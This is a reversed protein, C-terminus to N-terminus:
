IRPDPCGPLGLLKIQAEACRERRRAPFNGKNGRAPVLAADDTRHTLELNGIRAFRPCNWLATSVAEGALGTRNETLAHVMFRLKAEKDAGMRHLWADPDTARPM